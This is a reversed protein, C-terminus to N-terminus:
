DPYGNRLDETGNTTLATENGDLDKIFLNYDRTFARFKLDPSLVDSYSRGRVGTISPEPEYFALKATALDYLFVKNFAQFQIKKGAAIYQFRVFPLKVEQRGLTTNIAAIIKADDFLATKQGTLVDTSKFTGDEFTYFAKGDPTWMTGGGFGRPGGGGMMRRGERQLKEYLARGIIRQPQQTQQVQQAMALASAGVFVVLGFLAVLKANRRM